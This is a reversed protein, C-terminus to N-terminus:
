LIIGMGIYGSSFQNKPDLSTFRGAWPDYSRTHFDYSNYGEFDIYEKSQFLANKFDGQVGISLPEGWVGYHNEQM